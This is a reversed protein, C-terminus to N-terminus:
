AVNALTAVLIRTGCIIFLGVFMIMRIRTYKKLLQQVFTMRESIQNYHSVDDMKFFLFADFQKEFYSKFHNYEAEDEECLIKCTYNHLKWWLVKLYILIILTSAIFMKPPFLFLIALIIFLITFAFLYNLEFPIKDNNKMMM